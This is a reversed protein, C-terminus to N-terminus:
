SMITEHKNLLIPRYNFDKQAVRLVNEDLAFWDFYRKHIKCRSYM